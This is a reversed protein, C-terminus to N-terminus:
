NNAFVSILPCNVIFGTAQFTDSTSGQPTISQAQTGVLAEAAAFSTQRLRSATPVSSKWQVLHIDWMPSYNFQGGNNPVDELINLPSEQDLIAANLGQRQVNDRGTQGNIFAILSERACGPNIFPGPVNIDNTGCDASPVGGLAPAYTVDEVAAPGAASSDFSVYHVSQDEYCGNTEAYTVLTNAIDVSSVKDAWHAKDAGNTSAGDGIQPANIVVGSPLRVLPSYGQNGVAGPSAASPPFGTPGATLVHVPSFDVGAPVDISTADNSSSSQAASTGAANALKPTYNVGLSQAVALSSADTIVYYVAHGAATGRRLPFTVTPKSTPSNEQFSTPGQQTETTFFSNPGFTQHFTHSTNFCMFPLQDPTAAHVAKPGVSGTGVTVGVAAALAFALARGVALDISRSPNM